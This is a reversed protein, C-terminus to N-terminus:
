LAKTFNFMFASLAAGLVSCDDFSHWSGERLSRPPSIM